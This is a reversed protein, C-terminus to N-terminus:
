EKIELVKKHDIIGSVSSKSNCRLACAQVICSSPGLDVEKNVRKPVPDYGGAFFGNCKLLRKIGLFCGYFVNHSRLADLFYTSCSPYFRCCKPLMPSILFKYLLIPLSFILFFIKNLLIVFSFCKADSRLFMKKNGYSMNSLM